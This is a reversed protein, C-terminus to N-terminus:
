TNSTRLGADRGTCRGRFPDRAAQRASEGASRAPHGASQLYEGKSLFAAAEDKGATEKTHREAFGAPLPPMSGPEITEGFYNLSSVLHGLQWATHNAGSVPRVLIEADTFDALLMDTVMKSRGFSARMVDKIQM